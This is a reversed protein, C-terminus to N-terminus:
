KEQATQDLPTTLKQLRNDFQIRKEVVKHNGKRALAINERAKELDNIATAMKAINLRIILRSTEAMEAYDLLQEMATIGRKLTDETESALCREALFDSESWYSLSKPSTRASSAEEYFGNIGYIYTLIERQDDKHRKTYFLQPSWRSIGLM